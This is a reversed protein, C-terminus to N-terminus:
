TPSKILIRKMIFVVSKWKKRISDSILMVLAATIISCMLYVLLRSKDGMNVSLISTINHSFHSHSLFLCFSYKGLFHCLRNNFLEIDVTKESFTIIIAVVYVLIYFYDQRSARQCYMYWLLLIYCMYEVITLIWKGLTTFEYKKLLACFKYCCVGVSLEAFARLNGRYTWGIWETPSRPSRENGCFWGLILLSTLPLFLNVSFNPYKRIMPYIIAMCLLMSSIYWVSPNISIVRIGTMGLLVGDYGSLILLKLFHTDNAYYYFLLAIIHSVFIEPCFSSYKRVIFRRTETGINNPATQLKDISGMLLYGSVLFFFEVAFSGGYLFLEDRTGVVYRGHHVVIVLSFIFKLFDVKGNRTAKCRISNKCAQVGRM